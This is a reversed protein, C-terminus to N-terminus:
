WFSGLKKIKNKSRVYSGKGKKPKIVKHRYLKNIRLELAPINRMKM